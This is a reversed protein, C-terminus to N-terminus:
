WGHRGAMRVKRKSDLDSHFFLETVVASDEIERSNGAWRLNHRGFLRKAVLKIKQGRLPFVCRDFSLLIFFSGRQALSGRTTILNVPWATKKEVSSKEELKAATSTM